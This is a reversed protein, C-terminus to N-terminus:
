RSATENLRKEYVHVRVYFNLDMSINRICLEDVDANNKIPFKLCCRKDSFHLDHLFLHLSSYIFHIFYHLFLGQSFM